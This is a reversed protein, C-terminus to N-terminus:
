WGATIGVTFSRALPYAYYDVGMVVNALSGASNVDPTYGTYKTWTKLNRGSVFLRADSLHASHALRAPLHYGLTVEGLRLFSGDEIMRSSMLRAGSTGDYSMRPEDTIDGPKQWRNLELTSKNDYSWGGDDTFIRMMNFVKNGQSFQLFGRLDFSGLTFTNTFGGYYNPQPNGVMMLDSATPSKSEGGDATAFVANGDQPDVRLFKYMYFEGIPKGVAVISTVRSSVTYTIPQGGYLQTVKNRNWTVNLDSNWGLGRFNKINVTHLGLDVGKNQIEGINDWISTYGSTSPVPRQVLLNSTSRNYWDAILSVRGELTTIDTGFDFEKTQEWKLNSNGLQSAAVGPAGAYPAGTALNLSAYDGIGQNGTMGFSGRLKVSAYRALGSMFSEDTALWGVSVAPFTGYRNSSGFRSSGDTRLSASVLYRDLYSWSARTFYSAINNDNASGDWTTINAANHVYTSFGTPFGEGRLFELTTHNKEVSAGGTVSLHQRDNRIADFSLYSEAVYKTATTHDTRGVGNVSASYTGDVKPSSWALEDVGYSDAGARANLYFRDNFSYKAEINGFARNTKYSDFSYAATAVPNSYRLGEADGGYGFFGGYIPRMPQMGIANTVVGDLSQDGPIRDDNEHALSLSTTILLKDTASLDFNLRGTQRRYGSGIVIGRQDFNAGSTYFKLRDTGGSVALQIDNVSAHRFVAKQWDYSASDDVGATFDYDDPEYGDNKASENMLDVYQKANLLGIQHAVGQTGTYTNINFRTRGLAGRKTTILVVGNSGRSGYIAAAAADKLVDINAIEDPNLGTIASMDQGSLAIQDFSGQIIPVGDVVYLPQNGANLSAPGRVRISIGAGPEGSNQMVQVGAVKGQLANDVGAVPMNSIAASDVSAIASSVEHRSSTGYGVSVIESLQVAVARLVLNETLTDGGQIVVARSLPTYGVRQARLTASGAPVGRIVYQGADNTVAGRASGVVSVQVGPIGRLNASDTVTGRITGASQALAGRALTATAVLALVAFALPRAIGISKM